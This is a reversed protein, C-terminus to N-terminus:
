LIVREDVTVDIQRLGRLVDELERVVIYVGGAVEVDAKVEKQDVSLVGKGTKVECSVWRGRFVADIDARGREQGIGGANKFARAGLVLLFDRVQKVLASHANM